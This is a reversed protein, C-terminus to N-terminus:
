WSDPTHWLVWSPRTKKLHPKAMYGLNALFELDQRLKRLGIIVAMDSHWPHIVNQYVSCFCKIVNESTHTHAIHILM